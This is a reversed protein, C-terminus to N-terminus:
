TNRIVNQTDHTEERLLTCCVVPLAYFTKWLDDVFTNVFHRFTIGLGKLVGLGFM